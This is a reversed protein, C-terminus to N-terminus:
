LIVTTMLDGEPGIRTPHKSDNWQVFGAFTKGATGGTVGGGATELTFTAGSFTKQKACDDPTAPLPPTFSGDANKTCITYSVVVGDATAAVSKRKTDHETACGFKLQGGGLQTIQAFCEEEIADKHRVPKKRVLVFRMTASDTEDVNPAAAIINLLPNGFVHFAKIFDKVQKRVISNVQAPDIYKPYLTDRWYTRKDSWDSDNATTWGWFKYNEHPTRDSRTGSQYDDSTNVYSNFKAPSSPIRSRDSM